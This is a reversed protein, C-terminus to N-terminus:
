PVRGPAGAPRQSVPRPGAHLRCVTDALLQALGVRELPVGAPVPLALSDTALLRRLPLARLREPAPGVLLAHTAAVTVEPVCGADLLMGVAAEITGGTSIMDDVVVPRRGRVDGV